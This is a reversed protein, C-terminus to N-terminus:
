KRLGDRRLQSEAHGRQQTVHAKMLEMWDFGTFPACHVFQHKRCLLNPFQCRLRTAIAIAQLISTKCVGNDGVLVTWLRATGDPRVFSFDQDALLKMNELRLSRIHM